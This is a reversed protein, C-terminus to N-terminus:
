GFATARSLIKAASLAVNVYWAAHTVKASLARTGAASQYQGLALHQAAALGGTRGVSFVDVGDKYLRQTAGDWTVAFHHWSGDAPISAGTVASSGNHYLTLDNAGAGTSAIYIMSGFASGTWNGIIASDVDAVSQAFWAEYTYATTNANANPTTNTAGLTAGSACRHGSPGGPDPVSGGQLTLPAAGSGSDALTTGSTEQCDWYYTPSDALILVRYAAVSLPGGFRGSQILSTM